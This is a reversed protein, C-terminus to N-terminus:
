CHCQSWNGFLKFAEESTTAVLCEVFQVDYPEYVNLVATHAHSRQCSCCDLVNCVEHQWFERKFCANCTTLKM